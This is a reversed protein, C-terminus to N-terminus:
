PMKSANASPSSQVSGTSTLPATLSSSDNAILKEGLANQFPEPDDCMASSFNFRGLKRGITEDVVRAWDKSLTRQHQERKRNEM